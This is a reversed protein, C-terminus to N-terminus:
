QTPTSDQYTYIYITNDKEFSITQEAPESEYKLSDIIKIGSKYVYTEEYAEGMETEYEIPEVLTTELCSDIITNNNDRWKELSEITGVSVSNDRLDCTFVGPTEPDHFKLEASILLDNSLYEKFLNEMGSADVTKTEKPVIVTETETEKETETEIETETETEISLTGEEFSM